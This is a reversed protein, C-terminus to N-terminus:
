ERTEYLKVESRGEDGTSLVLLHPVGFEGAWRRSLQVARKRSLDDLEVSAQIQHESPAIGPLHSLRFVEGCSCNEDYILVALEVPVAGAVRPEASDSVHVVSIGRGAALQRGQWEPTCEPAAEIEATDPLYEYIAGQADILIM